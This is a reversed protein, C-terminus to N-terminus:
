ATNSLQSAFDTFMYCNARSCWQGPAKQARNPQLDLPLLPKSGVSTMFTPVSCGRQEKAGCMADAGTDCDRSPVPPFLVPSFSELWSPLHCSPSAADTNNNSSNKETKDIASVLSFLERSKIDSCSGVPFM